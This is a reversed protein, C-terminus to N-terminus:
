HQNINDTQDDKTTALKRWSQSTFLETELHQESLWAEVEPELKGVESIFTQFYANDYLLGIKWIEQGNSLRELEVYELWEGLLDGEEPTLGIGKLNRIDDDQELIVIYGYEELSFEGINKEQGLAEYMQQFLRGVYTLSAESIAGSGVLAELDAIAKITKM